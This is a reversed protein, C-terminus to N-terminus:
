STSPPTPETGYRIGHRTRRPEHDPGNRRTLPDKDQDIEWLKWPPQPDSFGTRDPVGATEEICQCGMISMDLRAMSLDLQRLYRQWQRMTSWSAKPLRAAHAYRSPGSTLLQPVQHQGPDRTSRVLSRHPSRPIGTSCGLPGAPGWSRHIAIEAVSSLHSHTM